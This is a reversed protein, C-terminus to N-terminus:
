VAAFRLFANEDRRGRVRFFGPIVRIAKVAADNQNVPYLQRFQHEIMSDSNGRDVAVNNLANIRVEELVIFNPGIDCRL